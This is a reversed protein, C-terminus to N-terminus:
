KRILRIYGIIGAILEIIAGIMGIYAKVILNYVIWLFSSIMGIKYSTRLNKQWTGYTFIFTIFIPLLSYINNYTVIGVIIIILEIIILSSIPNEKNRQENRHYILTRVMSILCTILATYANLVLYQLGYFLNSFIQFFLFNKKKKQQYSSAMSILGLTGFVQALLFM